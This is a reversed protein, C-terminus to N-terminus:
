QNGAKYNPLKKRYNIILEVVRNAAVLYDQAADVTPIVQANAVKNRLGKLERLLKFTHPPLVDAEMIAHYVNDISELPDHIVNIQRGLQHLQGDIKAWGELIMRSPDGRASLLDSVIEDTTTDPQQEENAVPPAVTTTEQSTEALVKKAALEFEAEVPGAKFKKITPLLELLRRKFAMGLVLAVIPWALSDIIKSFFTLRDLKTRLPPATRQGADTYTADVM